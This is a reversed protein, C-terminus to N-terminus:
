KPKLCKGVSLLRPNITILMKWGAPKWKQNVEENLKQKKEVRNTITLDVYLHPNHNTSSQKM